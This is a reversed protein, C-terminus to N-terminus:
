YLFEVFGGSIAKKNTEKILVEYLLNQNKEWTKVIITQGPLVPSTFRAKAGIIKRTPNLNQIM